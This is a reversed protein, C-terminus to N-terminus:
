EYTGELENNTSFSFSQGQADISTESQSYGSISVPRKTEINFLITYSSEEMTSVMASGGGANIETAGSVESTVDIEAIGNEIKRLTWTQDVEVPIAGFPLTREDERTPLKVQKGPELDISPLDPLNFLGFDMDEDKGQNEALAKTADKDLEGKNDIIMWGEAKGLQEVIDVPDQGQEVAQKKMFEPDLQGTGQYKVLEVVKGHVKLKGNAPTAEITSKAEINAAGSGQSSSIEFKLKMTAALTFGDASYVYDKGGESGKGSGGGADTSAGDKTKPKDTAGGGKDCAATALSLGLALALTTATRFRPRRLQM